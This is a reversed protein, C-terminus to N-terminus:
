FQKDNVVVNDFVIVGYYKTNIKDNVLTKINCDKFIINEVVDNPNGDVDGIRDCTININTFSINKVLAFPPDKRDKLDYFQRWPRMSIISSAKGTINELSIDEYLQPTDPRIKLRLIPAKSNVTCNRIVINKAHICESGITVCGHSDGFNCKEILVNKVSGNEPLKDAYPGKGGKIAIADDNVSLYCGRIVVLSCVDLDIADTSPAKIPSLPSTIECNEILINKCKYLHTTWFGSNKLKIGSINIHNSNSIYVLRPRHVELNTWPKGAKVMSDVHSWFRDWFLYGNGDITGLGEISFSDVENANILASYYDLNQGEMRSPLYPYNNIDNSGKIVADKALSLKTKPKFFLAGTLFVGKPVVITGGGNAAALDITSQIAKTNLTTSDAIAGFDTIVYETPNKAATLVVLLLILFLSHLWKKM